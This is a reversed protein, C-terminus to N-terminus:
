QPDKQRYLVSPTYYHLSFVGERCRPNKWQGLLSSCGVLIRDVVRRLQLAGQVRGSLEPHVLIDKSRFKDNVLSFPSLSFGSCTMHFSSSHLHIILLFRRWRRLRRLRGLRDVDLRDVPPM